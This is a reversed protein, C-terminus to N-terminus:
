SGPLNTITANRFSGIGNRVWIGLMGQCDLSFAQLMKDNRLFQGINLTEEPQNDVAVIFQRGHVTVRLRHWAPAELSKPDALPIWSRAKLLFRLDQEAIGTAGKPPNFQWTGFYLRGYKDDLIPRTDLKLAFFRMQALQDKLNERWGFLLGLDNTREVNQKTARCEISFAFDPEPPHDIAVVYPKDGEGRVSLETPLANLKGKGALVRYDIPQNDIRLLNVKAGFPRDREFPQRVVPKSSSIESKKDTSPQRRSHIALAFATIAFVGIVGVIWARGRRQRKPQTSRIPATNSSLFAELDTALESATQYRNEPSPSTARKIITQLAPPTEPAFQEIPRMTGSRVERLVADTDGRKATYPGKGGSALQYLTVGLSFIDSRADLPQGSAQEPSMFWPTGIVTGARTGTASDLARTLGFDVLYLQNHHDVMLNSPKIDRHLFGQRHASELARAANAGIRALTNFRDQRYERVISPLPSQDFTQTDAEAPSSQDQGGAEPGTDSPEYALTEAQAVSTARMLDALSIGRVLQMAYFATRDIKGTQIIRVVGPHDLKAPVNAELWFRKLAQENEALWPALVKLAVRREPHFQKAEYVEGMGGRGLLRIIEFDGLRQKPQLM